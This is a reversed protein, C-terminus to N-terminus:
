PPLGKEHRRKRVSEVTRKLQAALEADDMRGVLQDEDPTWFRKTLGFSPIKLHQRKSRVQKFRRGLRRAIVEDTDTGLLALEEETWWDILRRTRRPKRGSRRAAARGLARRLEKPSLPSSEERGTNM